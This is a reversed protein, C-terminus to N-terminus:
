GIRHDVGAEGARSCRMTKASAVNTEASANKVFMALPKGPGINM